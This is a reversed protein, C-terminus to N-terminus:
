TLSVASIVTYLSCFVNLVNIVNVACTAREIVHTLQYLKITVDYGCTTQVKDVSQDVGEKPFKM